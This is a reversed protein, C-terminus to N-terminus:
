EFRQTGRTQQFHMLKFEPHPKASRLLWASAIWDASSVAHSPPRWRGAGGYVPSGM